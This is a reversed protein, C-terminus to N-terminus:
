RAAARYAKRFERGTKGRYQQKVIVEDGFVEEFWRAANKDDDIRQIARGILLPTNPGLTEFM